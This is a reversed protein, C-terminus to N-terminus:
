ALRRGRNHVQVMRRLRTVVLSLRRDLGASVVKLGPGYLLSAGVGPCANLMAIMQSPAM